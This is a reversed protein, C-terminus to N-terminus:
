FDFSQALSRFLNLTVDLALPLLISFAFCDGGGVLAAANILQDIKRYLDNVLRREAERRYRDRHCRRAQHDVVSSLSASYVRQRALIVNTPYKSAEQIATKLSEELVEKTSLSKKNTDFDRNAAAKPKPRWRM